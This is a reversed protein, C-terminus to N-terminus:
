KYEKIANVSDWDIEGDENVECSAVYFAIRRKKDHASMIHWSYDARDIAEKETAFIDEFWDGKTQDIIAYVM